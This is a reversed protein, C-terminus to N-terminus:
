VDASPGFIRDEIVPTLEVASRPGGGLVIEQGPQRFLFGMVHPSLLPGDTPEKFPPESPADDESAVRVETEVGVVPEATFTDFVAFGGRLQKVFPEDAGDLGDLALRADGDKNWQFVGMVSLGAFRRFPIAGELEAVTRTTHKSKHTVRALDFFLPDDLTLSVYPDVVVRRDPAPARDTLEGESLLHDCLLEGIKTSYELHLHSDKMFLEEVDGQHKDVEAYIDLVDIGHLQTSKRHFEYVDVDRFSRVYAMSPFYVSVVRGPLTSYLAYMDNISREVQDASLTGKKRHYLDIIMSDLIVLDATELLQRYQHFMHVHFLSCSGGMSLNYVDYGEATLRDIVVKSFGFRFVCNSNGVIVAHM